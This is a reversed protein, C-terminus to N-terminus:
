VTKCIVEGDWAESNVGQRVIFTDEPDISKKITLLKAYNADGWYAQQWNPENIEPENLYTGGGPTLDRLPVLQSNVTARDATITEYDASPDWTIGLTMDVLCSRWAPTTSTLSANASSVAGGGVSFPRGGPLNAVADILASQNSEFVSRPLLRSGAAANVGVYDGLTYNYGIANETNIFNDHYWQLFTPYRVTEALSVNVDPIKRAADFFAELSSNANPNTPPYNQALLTLYLTDNNFPWFGGWGGDAVSTSANIYAGLLAKRSANTKATGQFFGATFPTSKHAKYTTTILVGFSPGGGGRLAWAIEPHQYQSVTIYTGNPLVVSQELVNDIGLGFFPSLISHGAGNIWGGGAGVTGGAGIGGVVNYGSANAADYVEGWSM